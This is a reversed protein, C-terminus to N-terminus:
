DNKLTKTNFLCYFLTFFVVGRQRWIFSETLFLSIMLIAFSLHIFDKKKIANSINLYLMICFILFAFVGLEAFVQIYQNHFNFKGYGPYLNYKEEKELLKNLSANLGFGKLLIPEENLFEIFMRIQYVRFATGSFYDSHQFRDRNWAEIISVNRVNKDINTVVNHSLNRDSNTQFEILFREKIKSFSFLLGFFIILISINRLRMRNAVKSYFFVYIFSLLLFIVIINKSSLLMVFLFLLFMIIFDIKAKFRKQLYYFFALSVYVSMHIANLEKSVLGFNDDYEGHYFFVRSDNTLFYRLIARILYYLVLIFISFSYYKIIKNLTRKSFLPKFLFIIPLAFLSIEKPIAAVTREYDITWFVSLLMILFLIISLILLINKKLLLKKYNLFFVFFLIGLIINNIGLPFPITIILLLVPLFFSDLNIEKKIDVWANKLYNYTNGM